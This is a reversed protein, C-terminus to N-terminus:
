RHRFATEGRLSVDLNLWAECAHIRVSDGADLDSLDAGKVLSAAALLHGLLDDAEGLFEVLTNAPHAAGADM